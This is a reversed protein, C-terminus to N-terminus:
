KESFQIVEDRVFREYIVKIARDFDENNVGM